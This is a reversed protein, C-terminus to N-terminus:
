INVRILEATFQKILQNSLNTVNIELNISEGPNYGGVAM